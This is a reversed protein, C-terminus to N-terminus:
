TETIEACSDKRHIALATGREAMLVGDLVEILKDIEEETGIALTGSNQLWIRGKTREKRMEGVPFNLSRLYM